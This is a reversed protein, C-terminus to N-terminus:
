RAGFIEDRIRSILRPDAHTQVAAETGDGALVRTLAAGLEDAENVVTVGTLTHFYAATALQHDNRIERLAARRPLMVLPKGYTMAALMTGTGAHGVICAAARCRAEFEVPEVEAKWAFNRPIYPDRDCDQTRRLIQGFVEEEPHAAAWADMAEVLRDFPLRMGVTLFIM